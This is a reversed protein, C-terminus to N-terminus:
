IREVTDGRVWGIKGDPTKIRVWAGDENVINVQTGEYLKFHTVGTDSPAFKSDTSADIMVVPKQACVEYYKLGWATGFLCVAAACLIVSNKIFALPKKVLLMISLGILLFIYASCVVITLGDLTYYAGVRQLVRVPLVHKKALVPNERLSLAFVLNANLDSDRPILRKAREYNVIAKGLHGAKFYANGLNYYVNGSEVGAAILKEYEAAASEYDGQKFDNNAKYFFARVQSADQPSFAYACGASIILILVAILIRFLKM